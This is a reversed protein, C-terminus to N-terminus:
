TFLGEQRAPWWIPARNATIIEREQKDSWFNSAKRRLASAPKEIWLPGLENALGCAEHIIVTAGAEHWARALSLVTGRSSSHHYGSTGEYPPDLIVLTNDAPGTPLCLGADQQTLRIGSATPIEGIREALTWRPIMNGKSRGDPYIKTHNEPNFGQTDWVKPLEGIREALAWRPSDEWSISGDRQRQYQDVEPKFGKDEWAEKLEIPTLSFSRSQLYVAAATLTPLDEPPPAKRLREWLRRDNQTGTGDCEVCGTHGALRARNVRAGELAKAAQEANCIPCPVWAWIQRIVADRLEQFAYLGHILSCVTSLDNLWVGGWQVRALGWARLVGPAFGAKSGQRSVPPEARGGHKRSLVLLSYAGLGAYPEVLTWIM